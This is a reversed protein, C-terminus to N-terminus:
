TANKRRKNNPQVASPEKFNLKLKVFDFIIIARQISADMLQRSPLYLEEEPYRFETSLPNLSAAEINLSDFEKDLASCMTLLKILDHTKQIPEKRYVLFAKLSKEACQQTHGIAMDLAEDSEAIKQAVYLDHKAKLLWLEHKKFSQM